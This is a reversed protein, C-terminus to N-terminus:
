KKADQTHFWQSALYACAWAFALQVPAPLAPVFQPAYSQVIVLVGGVLATLLITAYRKLDPSSNWAKWAPIDDLVYALAGGAVLALALSFFQNIADM